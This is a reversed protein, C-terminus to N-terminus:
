VPDHPVKMLLYRLAQSVTPRFGFQKEMTAAAEEIRRVADVDVSINKFKTRGEPKPKPGRKM